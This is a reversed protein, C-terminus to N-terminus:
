TKAHTEGDICTLLADNLARLTDPNDIAQDNEDSLLFLDEAREGFTAIRADQVRVRHERFLRAIDALLSPRDTCIVTLRTKGPVANTDFEVRPIVQFHKLQRPFARRPPKVTAAPRSLMQTLVRATDAAIHQPDGEMKNLPILQFTDLTMGRTSSLIRAALVSFGLRDITATLVAFLGDRDPSYVFAEYSGGPQPRVMAIPEADNNDTSKNHAAIGRTQWALQESRYRIFSEDPFESWVQEVHSRDFGDHALLAWTEDRTEAVREAINVPHELGRRLAFRTADYLDALLRGKWANWLKPSTGAIDACTLLYLYDLRARDGVIEGFRAVVEPDSVDQRQATTSMLLHQRVLWVLLETDSNSITHALAFDRVDDAGLESHDGGRGKAIDHFLGAILLLHPKRIRPWVQQAKVFRPDTGNPFSAMIRLVTLTHQDVTYVHFLDYQMRGSVRAFAPLYRALVGLYAMKSLTGVAQERSIQAIFRARISEPQQFYPDIKHLAEALARATESHLGSARPTDAWVDFLDLVRAFGDNFTNPDIAALYGHRLEFGAALPQPPEEPALQEEFRQLLRDNIRVITQASRFFQQMMQEVALNDAREDRFGMKEALAKQYDFLLREEHRGSVLHLGFRLRALVHWERELSECEDTGLLGLPVLARLGSVSYLRIAMWTVTQLDRLGGPGDKINPELNNVTDNFRAHRHKQEDRKAAFYKKVPWLYEPALAQELPVLVQASGALLRREILSTFTSVDDRAALVCQEISRVAHGPNLGIDWLWSFFEGIPGAQERQIKPEAIVLLDIDSQPYLEARGYGGTAVLAISQNDVVLQKWASTVIADIMRTHSSILRQVDEGTEFRRKLAALHDALLAKALERWSAADRAQDLSPITSDSLTVIM